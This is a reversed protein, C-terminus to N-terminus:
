IPSYGTLKWHRWIIAFPCLDKDNVRSWPANDCRSDTTLSGANCVDKLECNTQYGWFVNHIQEIAWILPYNLSPAKNKSDHLYTEGSDNTMLPTGINKFFKDFAVNVKLKKGRAIDLPFTPNTLRHNIASKIMNELWNKIPDFSPDNFYGKIQSIAIDAQQNILSTFDTAGHFDFSPSTTKCYDYVDEPKNFLVNNCKIKLLTEYFFEGPHFVQLSSDCLALINLRDHGFGPHVLEVLKEAAKYPLDPSPECNSYCESEIIYAMNEVIALAGFQFLQSLGDEDQYSIEVISPNISGGNIQIPNNTKTHSLFHAENDEGNGNYITSIELNSYVNDLGLPIPLVPVNFKRPPSKLVENNVFKMYDVIININSLGYVTTIDQIFHIFEHLFISETYDDNFKTYDALSLDTGVHMRMFSPIYFGLSTNLKKKM